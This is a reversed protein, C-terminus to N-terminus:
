GMGKTILVDYLRGVQEDIHKVTAATQASRTQHETIQDSLGRQRREIKPLAKGIEGIQAELRQIDGVTAAKEEVEKVREEVTGVRSKLGTLESGITTLRKDLGGTGVPNTAGGKWVMYGITCIIFAIIAWEIILGTM